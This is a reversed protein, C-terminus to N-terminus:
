DACIYNLMSMVIGEVVEDGIDGNEEGKEEVNILLVEKKSDKHIARLNEKDNRIERIVNFCVNNRYIYNELWNSDLNIDTRYEFVSDVNNYIRIKGERRRQIRRFSSCSPTLSSEPIFDEKRRLFIEWNSFVNWKSGRDARVTPRIKSSGEYATKAPPYLRNHEYLNASSGDSTGRLTFTM